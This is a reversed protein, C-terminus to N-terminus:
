RGEESDQSSPLPARRSKTTHYENWMQRALAAHREAELRLGKILGENM